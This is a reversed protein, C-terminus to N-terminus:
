GNRAKAHATGDDSSVLSPGSGTAAEDRDADVSGAEDGQQKYSLAAVAQKDRTLSEGIFQGGPEIVFRESAIEGYVRGTSVIELSECEVRGQVHGSVMLRNAKLTGEFYGTRGVSVDGHCEITGEITGDIHLTGDLTLEGFFRTGEAVITTGSQKSTEEGGKGFLGM